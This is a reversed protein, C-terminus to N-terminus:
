LPAGDREAAGGDDSGEHANAVDEAPKVVVHESGVAGQGADDGARCDARHQEHADEDGGADAPRPPSRSVQEM